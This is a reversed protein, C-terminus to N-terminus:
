NSHLIDFITASLFGIICLAIKKMRTLMKACKEAQVWLESLCRCLAPAFLFTTRHLSRRPACLIRGTQLCCFM